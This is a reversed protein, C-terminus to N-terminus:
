VVPTGFSKTLAIVSKLASEISTGKKTKQRRLITLSDDALAPSIDHAPQSALTVSASSRISLLAHLERNGPQEKLAMRWADRAEQPFGLQGYAKGMAIWSTTSDPKLKVVRQYAAVAEHFRKLKHKYQALKYYEQALTTAVIKADINRNDLSMATTVAQNASELDGVRYYSKALWIYGAVFDENVAVSNKFWEIAAPYNDNHYAERGLDFFEDVPEKVAAASVWGEEGDEFIVKYWPIKYLGFVGQGPQLTRVTRRTMAPSTAVVTLMWGQMDVIEGQSSGAATEKAKIVDELFFEVTREVSGQSGAISYRVIHLGAPVNDPLQYAGSWDLGDDSDLAVIDKGFDFTAAVAEVRSVTRIGLSILRDAGVAKPYVYTELWALSLGEGPQTPGAKLSLDEPKIVSMGAAYVVSALLLWVLFFSLKRM